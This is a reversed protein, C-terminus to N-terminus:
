VPKAAEVEGKVRLSGFEAFSEGAHVAAPTVVEGKEDDPHHWARLARWLLALMRRSGILFIALRRLRKSGGPEVLGPQPRTRNTESDSGL